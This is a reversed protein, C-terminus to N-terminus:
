DKLQEAIQAEALSWFYASDGNFGNKEAIYYAAEQVMLYRQEPTVSAKKAAKKAPAKAAKAPKAEVAPAVPLEPQVAKAAKKPAKAPAAEAVKKEKAPAEPKKSAKAPASSKTTKKM